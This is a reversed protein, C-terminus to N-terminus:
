FCCVGDKGTHAYVQAQLVLSSNQNQNVGLIADPDHVGRYITMITDPSVPTLGPPLTIAGLPLFTPILIIILIPLLISFFLTSIITICSFLFILFILFISIFIEFTSLYKLYSFFLQLVNRVRSRQTIKRLEERKM